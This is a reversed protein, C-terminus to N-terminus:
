TQSRVFSKELATHSHSSILHVQRNFISKKRDKLQKTISAKQYELKHSPVKQALESLMLCRKKSLVRNQLDLERSM